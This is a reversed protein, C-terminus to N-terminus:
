PTKLGAWEHGRCGGWQVTRKRGGGDGRGRQEWRRRNGPTVGGSVAMAAWLLSLVEGGGVSGSGILIKGRSWGSLSGCGMVIVGRARGCGGVSGIATIRCRTEARRLSLSATDWNVGNGAKDHMYVFCMLTVASRPHWVCGLWVCLAWSETRVGFKCTFQFCSYMIYLLLSLPPLIRLLLVCM